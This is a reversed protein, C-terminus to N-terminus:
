GQGGSHRPQTPSRARPGGFFQRQCPQGGRSSFGSWPRVELKTGGGRQRVVKEEATRGKLGLDATCANFVLRPSCVDTGRRAARPVNFM